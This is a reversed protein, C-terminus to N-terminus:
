MDILEATYNRFKTLRIFTMSGWELHVKRQSPRKYSLQTGHSAYISIRIVRKITNKEATFYVYWNPYYYFFMWPLANSTRELTSKNAIEIKSLNTDHEQRWHQLRRTSM